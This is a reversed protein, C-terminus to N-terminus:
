WRTASSAVPVPSAGLRLGEPVGAEVLLEGLMAARHGPHAVGAQHDRLQRVRAGARDEVHHDAAPLEVARDARVRRGARAARRRARRGAGAGGRRLAQQRRRRLVRVVDAAADVEWRADGIPKGANRAELAALEEAHERLLAAVRLLVRGRATASLGPGVARRSRPARRPSRPTPTPRPARHSAHHARCRLRARRRRPHRRRRRPPIDRRHPSGHAAVYRSTGPHGPASRVATCPHASAGPAAGLDDARPRPRPPARPPTSADDPDFADGARRGADVM